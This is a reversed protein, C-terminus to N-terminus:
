QQMSNNHTTNFPTIRVQVEFQGSPQTNVARIPLVVCTPILDGAEFGFLLSCFFVSFIHIHHTLKWKISEGCAALQLLMIAKRIHLHTLM